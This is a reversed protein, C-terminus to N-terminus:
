KCFGENMEDPPDGYTDDENISGVIEDNEKIKYKGFYKEDISTLRKKESIDIKIEPELNNAMNELYEESIDELDNFFDLELINNKNKNDKKNKFKFYLNFMENIKEIKNFNIFGKENIYKSKEEFFNIDRLLMGLYPIFIEGNKDCNDMDERIKRYNGEVTCFHKIKNLLSNTKTKVEKLTLKLGTIIYHNFASFIAILDNYDKNNKCYDAILVWKDYIKARDKPSNYSLIDEMIFSTLRNFKSICEVVNPSTKEKDKKLFIAKYLERPHIKSLLTKSVTMLQQGIEETKWDTVCFYGKMLYERIVEQKKSTIIISSAYNKTMRKQRQRATVLIKKEELIKKQLKKYFNIENKLDKMYNKDEDEELNIEKENYKELLSIIGVLITLNNQKISIINENIKGQEMINNIIDKIKEKDNEDKSSNDDSYLEDNDDNDSDTDFSKKKRLKDDDSKENKDEEEKTINKLRNKGFSYNKTSRRLTRSIEIREQKQEKKLEKIINEKEEFNVKKKDTTTKNKVKILNSKRLNMNNNNNNNNDNNNDKNTNINNEENNNKLIFINIDNEVINLNENILDEKNIKHIKNNDNNNTDNIMNIISISILKYCLKKAHIFCENNLKDNQYYFIIEIILVKSFQLINYFQKEDLNDIQNLIQEFLENIKIFSLCQQCFHYILCINNDLYNEYIIKKILEQYTLENKQEIEINIKEKKEEKDEKDEKNNENKDKIIDNKNMNIDKIKLINKESSQKNLGSNERKLSSDRTAKSDITQSHPRLLTMSNTRKKIEIDETISEIICLKMKSLKEKKKIKKTKLTEDILKILFVIDINQVFQGNKSEPFKEKIFLKIEKNWVNIFDINFNDNDTIYYQIFSLLFRASDATCNIKIFYLHYFDILESEIDIKNNNSSYFLINIYNIINCKMGIM